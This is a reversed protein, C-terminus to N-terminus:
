IILENINIINKNWNDEVIRPCATNIWCEIQPFNLEEQPSILDGIFIIGKKGKQELKRKIQIARQLNEQGQKISVLIGFTTARKAIEQRIIKKQLYKNVDQKSIQTVKNFVFDFVFVPKTTAYAVALPHFFGSGVFLYAEIEKEIKKANKINCGLIQGGIVAIFRRASLQMEVEPLLDLYQVTTILGIKKYKKLKEFVEESLKIEVNSKVPIFLRKM